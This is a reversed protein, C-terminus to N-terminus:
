YLNYNSKNRALSFLNGEKASIMSGYCFQSFGEQDNPITTGPQSVFQRMSQEFEYEDGLNKFLKDAIDPQTHNLQIVMKKAEKLVKDNDFSPPAPKKNVNYEYDPLLINSFPNNATPEDFVDTPVKIQKEQLVASVPNEYGEKFGGKTTKKQSHYLILIAVITIFGIILIRLKQTMVFGLITLVLVVRTIANLKQEYTMSESPFFEYVYMPNLLINPNDFWFPIKPSTPTTLGTITEKKETEKTYMPGGTVMPVLYKGNNESHLEQQIYNSNLIKENMEPDEYKSM